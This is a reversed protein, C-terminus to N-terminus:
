FNKFKDQHQRVYEQQQSTLVDKKDEDLISHGLPVAGEAGSSAAAASSASPGKNDILKSTDDKSEEADNMNIRQEEEISKLDPKYEAEIERNYLAEWNIGKFFPHM